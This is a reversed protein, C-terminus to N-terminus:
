SVRVTKGTEAAEYFGFITKLVKLGDQATIPAGRLGASARVCERVWPTYGRPERAGDYEKLGGENTYWTLPKPNAGGLWESYEIWGKSGWLRIHSHYGKDLYYGSTMTGLVGNEFRMSLAASDESKIPQGGVIGAFGAVESVQSKMFLNALDLWHIGLWILHGGGSRERDSYWTKQYSERTLRTQDAIMHIEIGYPKGFTGADILQRAKLVPPNIRNAFAMMLLQQNADAKKVLKEFDEIRVCSPKEAFVHCGADLVKNIVPPAHRAEMSVMALVPKANNLTKDVDDYVAALKDGLANKASAISQGSPDCLVVDSVEECAALGAFYAGLHAGEAGTFVGVPISDPM